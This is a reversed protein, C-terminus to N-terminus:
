PMMEMMMPDMMMGPGMEGGPMPSMGPSRRQVGAEIADQIMSYRERVDTSWHTKGITMKQLQNDPDNFLMTSLSGPRLRSGWVTENFIDVLLNGTTFDVLEEDPSAATQYEGTTPKEEIDEVEYGIIQGPFVDFEYDRWQGLFYKAVEIRVGAAETSGNGAAIAEMPFMYIRRPIDVVETPESYHSWLILHDKYDAQEEQFWDKGAIPNFVGIRVRYQYASGPEASDDHVWVLLPEQISAITKRDGLQEAEFEKQITEITREQERRGPREPRDARYGPTGMMPGDTRNRTPQRRGTSRRDSTRRNDDPRLTRDPERQLQRQRIAERRAMEEEKELIDQAQAMFEPAMWDLRSVTFTYPEPQLIDYQVQENGFQSMWIDVGYQSQQLQEPLEALLKQYTDIRTRSVVKWDGWGGDSQRARRQLEMRAFVPAALRPDKEASSLRPGMFSQQFNNILRRVDFRASVSVLDVDAIEYPTSEYPREPSVEETPVQAAGRLPEASVNTLTPIEPLAYLRVDMVPKEPEGPLPIKLSAIDSIPCQVLQNYAPWVPQDPPLPPPPNELQPLAQELQAKVERDIQSPSLKRERVGVRVTQGYPNGIVYVWLLVLSIIVYVALVIKDIQSELMLLLNKQKM